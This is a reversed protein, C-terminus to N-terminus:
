NPIIFIWIKTMLKIGRRHDTIEIAANGAFFYLSRIDEKMPELKVALVSPLRFCAKWNLISSISHFVLIEGFDYSWNKSTNWHKKSFAVFELVFHSRSHIQKITNRYPHVVAVVVVFVTDFFHLFNLSHLVCHLFATATATKFRLHRGRNKIAASQLVLVNSSSTDM